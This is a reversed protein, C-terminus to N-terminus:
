FFCFLSLKAIQLDRSTICLVNGSKYRFSVYWPWIAWLWFLCTMLLNGGTNLVLRPVFYSHPTTDEGPHLRLVRPLPHELLLRPWVSMHVIWEDGHWLEPLVASAPARWIDWQSCLIIVWYLVCVWFVFLYCPRGAAACVFRIFMGIAYAVLFSNDLVGFLTQYNDQDLSIAFIFSNAKEMDGDIININRGRIFLYSNHLM